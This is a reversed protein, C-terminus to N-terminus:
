NKNFQINCEPKFKNILGVEVFDIMQKEIEVYSYYKAKERKIIMNNLETEELYISYPNFCHQFIRQRICKASKGIYIIKKNEDYLFYCGILNTNLIYNKSRYRWHTNLSYLRCDDLINLPLIESYNDIEYHLIIKEM